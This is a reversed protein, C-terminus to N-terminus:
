LNYFYKLARIIMANKSISEAKADDNVQNYLDFPLTISFIKAKNQNKKKIDNIIDKLLAIIKNTDIPKKIFNNIGIKVAESVNNMDNSASIIIIFQKPNIRKIEEAIELGSRTPLRIDIFLIDPKHKEYLEMAIEANHAAYIESFFSKLTTCMLENVDAEDEVVLTTLKKTEQVIKILDDNM